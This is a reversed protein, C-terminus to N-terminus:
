GFQFMIQWTGIVLAITLFIFYRIKNQLGTIGIILPILPWSWYFLRDHYPMSFFLMAVGNLFLYSRLVEDRLRHLVSPASMLVCILIPLASFLVFRLKFGVNYDGGYYLGRAYLFNLARTANSFELAREICGFLVEPVGTAGLVVAGIWFALAFSRKCFVTLLALLLLSASVHFCIAIAVCVFFARFKRQWLFVLSHLGIGFAAGQRIVNTGLSWFIFSSMFMMWTFLAARTGLLRKLALFYGGVFMLAFAGFLTTKGTLRISIYFFLRSALEFGFQLPDEGKAAMLGYGITDTGVMDPRLALAMVLFIMSVLTIYVVARQSLLQRDRREKFLMLPGSGFGVAATVAVILAYSLLMLIYFISM